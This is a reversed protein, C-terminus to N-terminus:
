NIINYITKPGPNSLYDKKTEQKEKENQTQEKNSKLIYSM